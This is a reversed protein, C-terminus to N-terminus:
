CVFQMLQGYWSLGRHGHEAAQYGCAAMERLAGLINKATEEDDFLKAKQYMMYMETTRYSVESDKFDCPYWQSLFEQWTGDPNWFWVPGTQQSLVSM